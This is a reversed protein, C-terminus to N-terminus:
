RMPAERGLFFYAVQHYVLLGFGIPFALMVWILSIGLTNDIQTLAPGLTALGSWIMMLFFAVALAHAILVVISRLSPPLRGVALDFGVHAGERLALGAGLLFFWVLLFLALAHVLYISTELILRSAVELSVFVIFALGLMFLLFRTTRLIQRDVRRWAALPESM